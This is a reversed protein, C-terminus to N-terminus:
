GAALVEAGLVVEGSSRVGLLEFAEVPEDKGKLVTPGLARVDCEEGVLALTASGIVVTGPEAFTQLRAAVNATDGIASFTRLEASGINGVLAPGSNVGVRFMPRDDGIRVGAVSAQLALGARCARLAHDPQPRPANFIAMLADGAFHVITGGEALVAPVAAGFAANLMEVVADPATHASFPTFGRLDAFLVTIDLVEGGLAARKPDSVLTQAVYPSLYQRFLADIRKHLAAALQAQAFATREAIELYRSGTTAVAMAGILLFAQFGGITSTGLAAVAIAFLAIEFLAVAVAFRWPLRVVGFGVLGALMLSPAGIATFAFPEWLVLVICAASIMTVGAGILWVAPLTLARWTAAVGIANATGGILAAATSRDVPVGVLPPGLIAAVIWLGVGMATAIRLRLRGDPAETVRYIRELVPDVFRLTWRELRDWGPAPGTATDDVFGAGSSM